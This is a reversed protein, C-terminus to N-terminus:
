MGPGFAPHLAGAYGGGLRLFGVVPSRTVAGTGLLVFEQFM